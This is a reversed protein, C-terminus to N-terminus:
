KSSCEASLRSTDPGFGSHAVLKTWYGQGPKNIGYKECWKSITKDSVGFMKSIHTSPMSWVMKSLEDSTPRNTKRRLMAACKISCTQTSDFKQVGCIPCLDILTHEHSKFGNDAYYCLPKDEYKSRIEFQKQVIDNSLIWMRNHIECHCNHCLVITKNLEILLRNWSVTGGSAIIRLDKTQPDIHHFALAAICQSYGCYMCSGGSYDVAKRKLRRRHEKIRESDRYKGKDGTYYRVGSTSLGLSIAIENITKGQSVLNFILERRSNVM